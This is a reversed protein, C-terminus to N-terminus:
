HSEELATPAPQTYAEAAGHRYVLEGGLRGTSLSAALVLLSFSIHVLRGIWGWRGSLLGLGVPALTLLAALRFRKAAEEHDEILDHEIVHEVREEENEGTEVALYASGVLLAQLLVVAWWIRSPLFEGRISLAALLALGPILIALAIPLHVAVPHLPDPIM